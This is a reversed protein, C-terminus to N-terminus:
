SWTAQGQMIDVEVAAPLFGFLYGWLKLFTMEPFLTITHSPVQWTAQAFTSIATSKGLLKFVYDLKAVEHFHLHLKKELIFFPRLAPLFLLFQVKRKPSGAWSFSYLEPCAASWSFRSTDRFNTQCTWTVLFVSARTVKVVCSVQSELM